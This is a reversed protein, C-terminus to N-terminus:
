KALSKLIGPVRDIQIPYLDFPVSESGAAAKIQHRACASNDGLCYQNKLLQALAPKEAMKDNFFPCKPLCECEAM